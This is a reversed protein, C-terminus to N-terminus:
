LEDCTPRTCSMWAMAMVSIDLLDVVCDNNADSVQTFASYPDKIHSGQWHDFVMVQPCNVYDGTSIALDTGFSLMQTGVPPATVPGASDTALILSVDCNATTWGSIVVALAGVLGMAQFGVEGSDINILPTKITLAVGAGLIGACIWALYHGLFMGTSTWLGYSAKRAFRFIAMDSLGVHMALNCIWAFAVVHWFGIGTSTIGAATQGTWVSKEAMDWFQSFSRVQGVGSEQGLLPMMVLAGAIFILIMWPACVSAFQALKKFGLIALVTMAAGVAIVILVFRFDTPYWLTQAEIGFPIRVASASVTIMTGALVCYLLANCINYIFSLVPGGIRHLYWYLTLRTKIAIPACILTWSLVALLNGLLLGVIIDFIGAGWSVFLAGIVFETAATHEGAYSSAFYMGRCLKNQSVPERDFEYLADLKATLTEQKQTSSMM